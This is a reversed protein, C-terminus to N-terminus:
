TPSDGVPPFIFKQIKYGLYIFENNQGFRTLKISINKSSKSCESSGIGSPNNSFRAEWLYNKLCLAVAVIESIYGGCHSWM